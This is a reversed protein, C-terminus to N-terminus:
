RGRTRVSPARAAAAIEAEVRLEEADEHLGALRVSEARGPEWNELDPLARGRWLSLAEAM